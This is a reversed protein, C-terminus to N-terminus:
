MHYEQWWPCWDDHHIEIHHIGFTDTEATQYAECYECGGPVRAGDLHKIFDEIGM